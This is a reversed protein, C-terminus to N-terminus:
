LVSATYRILDSLDGPSAQRLYLSNIRMYKRIKKRTNKAFLGIFSRRTTFSHLRGNIQLYFSGAPETFSGSHRLDNQIPVLNKSWHVFCNLNGPRIVQYFRPGTGDLELKEFEVEGLTFAQVHESVLFIKNIGGSPNTYELVLSQNYIDYNLLLKGYSKGSLKLEGPLSEPGFLYPHNLVRFYRNYFQIGNILEPDTGYKRSIYEALGRSEKPPSNFDQALLATKVPVLSVLVPLLLRGSLSVLSGTLHINFM